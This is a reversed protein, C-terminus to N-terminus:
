LGAVGNVTLVIGLVAIASASAVPLLRASRTSLRRAVLDRAGLTLVGVVVLAAALGLSFSGVLALGYGIRDLAVSALLVVLATPSPLIGGAVALAVLGRRSLVPAGHDRGAGHDHGHDHGHEVGHDHRPVGEHIHRDSWRGLRSVLLGAGLALAIVGSALALWPYVREPAFVETAALVVFGLALVSATHMVAVAGGVAVAHRTRGGAGVLYAAMLTKGHGPGLAHLAGFGFALALALITLGGTREVLDTFAGGPIAQREAALADDSTGAHASAGPAFSFTAERVDVPSQLLDQPYSRLGDTVSTAPVSSGELAFGDAGSATVEHWGVRGEYNADAFALVGNTEIRGAFAAEVRLTELGGQGPLLVARASAVALEVPEGDISLSVNALLRSAGRLSWARREVDSVDGSRDADLEPMVQVTPIEAMDVVYDIRVHGPTLLIAASTNVTFNGLPHAFAASPVVLVGVLVCLFVLGRRV